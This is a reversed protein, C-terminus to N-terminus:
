ESEPPLQRTFWGGTYSDMLGSRTRIPLALSTFARPEEPTNVFLRTQFQRRIFYWLLIMKLVHHQILTWGYSQLVSVNFVLHPLNLSMLAVSRMQKARYADATTNTPIDLSSKVRIVRQAAAQEYAQSLLVVPMAGKHQLRRRLNAMDDPTIRFHELAARQVQQVTPERAFLDETWRTREERTMTRLIAIRQRAKVSRIEAETIRGQAALAAEPTSAMAWSSNSGRPAAPQSSSAAAAPDGQSLVPHVRGDPEAGGISATGAEGLDPGADGAGQAMAVPALSLWCLVSWASLFGTVLRAGQVRVM